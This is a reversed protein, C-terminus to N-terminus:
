NTIDSPIEKGLLSNLRENAYFRYYQDRWIDNFRQAMNEAQEFTECYCLIWTWEIDDVQVRTIIQYPKEFSPLGSLFFDHRVYFTQSYCHGNILKM